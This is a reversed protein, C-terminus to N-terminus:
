VLDEAPYKKLVNLKQLLKKELSNTSQQKSARIKKRQRLPQV